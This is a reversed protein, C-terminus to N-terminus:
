HWLYINVFIFVKYLLLVYMCVIFVSKTSCYDTYQTCIKDSGTNVQKVVVWFVPKYCILLNPKNKKTQKRHTNETLYPLPQLESQCPGNQRQWLSRTLERWFLERPFLLSLWLSPIVCELSILGKLVHLGRMLVIMLMKVSPFFFVFLSSPLSLSIFLSSTLISSMNKQDIHGCLATYICENASISWMSAYFHISCIKWEWAQATTQTEAATQLWCPSTRCSSRPTLSSRDDHVPIWFTLSM